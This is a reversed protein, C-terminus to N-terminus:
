DLLSTEFSPPQTKSLTQVQVSLVISFAIFLHKELREVFSVSGKTARRHGKANRVHERTRDM